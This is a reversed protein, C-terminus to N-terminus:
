RDHHSKKVEAAGAVAVLAPKGPEGEDLVFELDHWKEVMDINDAFSVFNPANMDYDVGVWPKQEIQGDLVMQYISDAPELQEVGECKRYVYLPRQAPWWWLTRGDIPQASCENFDAQWPIAMLKTIDGPEMGAAFDWGLDLPWDVDQKHRIRFPADYIQPLRSIWTMEIGPSFAGGVCNNLVGRTLAEGANRADAAGPEFHGEAWQSLIFYQTDTLRLFKSTQQGAVISADGALYPMMTGGKSSILENEEGPGRLYGLIRQRLGNYGTDPDGLMDINFRHPKPPIAVVWPYGEGRKLIPKIHTEFSPKFGNPGSNWMGNSFIEPAAGQKRVAIDFITDYLTVLNAVQPAYSPPGVLVWAPEVPVENGNIWLRAAVPGDSTDDFWGDNNAYEPLSRDEKLTGSHGHGGLVHLSGDAMLRMGGLTDIQWPKLGQPPFRHAADPTSQRDFEASSLGGGEADLWLTRPGPDTILRVRQEPDSVEANRLPHNSAYGDEGQSTQFQYWIPKKNALHVDWELREVEASTLDLPTARGQEDVQYIQFHAAQRKMRGQGDRFSAADFPSGDLNTPLAGEETPCLYYEDSTGVRAIGIAPYIKYTVNSM